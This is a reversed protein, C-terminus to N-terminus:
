ILLVSLVVLINLLQHLNGREFVEAVFLLAKLLENGIIEVWGDVGNTTISTIQDVEEVVVSLVQEETALVWLWVRMALFEVHNRIICHLIFARRESSLWTHNM